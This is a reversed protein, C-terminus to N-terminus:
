RFRPRSAACRGSSTRAAGGRGGSLAARQRDRDGGVRSLVVLLEEDTEDFTGGEKETLYLNGFVEGRIMVPVGAFTTMPPHEAPFGYSRPHDSIRELRLPEPNRILEGLIGHGRPLPGIRARTAEDIGVFLFRELEKKEAISSALRRM